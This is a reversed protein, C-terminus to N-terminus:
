KGRFKTEVPSELAKEISWGLRLRSYLTHVRIRKIRAWDSVTHSERQYEYIVNDTKNNCQVINNVWRCNTPSYPGDVDIRDDYGTEKALNEITEILMDKMKAM